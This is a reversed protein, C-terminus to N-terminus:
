YQGYAKFGEEKIKYELSAEVSARDYFEESYYVLIDLPYEMVPSITKRIQKLMNRKDINKDDILICIDIDSNDNPQGYVQSGFIILENVNMAEIIKNVLLDIHNKVSRM